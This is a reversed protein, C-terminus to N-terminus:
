VGSSRCSTKLRVDHLRMTCTHDRIHTIGAFVETGVRSCLNVLCMLSEKPFSSGGGLLMGETLTLHVEGSCSGSAAPMGELCPCIVRVQAAACDCSVHALGSATSWQHLRGCARPPPIGCRPQWSQWCGPPPLSPILDPYNMAGAKVFLKM